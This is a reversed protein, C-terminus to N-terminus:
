KTKEAIGQELTERYTEIMAALVASRSTGFASAARDLLDRDRKTMWSSVTEGELLEEAPQEGAM